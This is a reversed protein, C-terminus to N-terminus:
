SRIDAKLIVLPLTPGHALSRTPLQRLHAVTTHRTLGASAQTEKLQTVSGSAQRRLNEEGRAINRSVKYFQMM